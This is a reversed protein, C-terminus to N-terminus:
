IGDDEWLSLNEDQMRPAWNRGADIIHVVRWGRAQLANGIFRRHCRWPLLEACIFATPAECAMDELEELGKLFEPTKMHSEYGGNRYGGLDGGLWLYIIGAERLSAALPQSSFHPYRKSRPFSRVDCVRTIGKLKLINLFEEISRTSTGLSYVTKVEVTEARDSKM